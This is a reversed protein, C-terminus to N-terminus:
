CWKVNFATTMEAEIDQIMSAAANDANVDFLPNANVGSINGWNDYSYITPEIRSGNINTIAAKAATVEKRALNLLGSVSAGTIQCYQAAKKGDVIFFIGEADYGNARYTRVELTYSDSSYGEKAAQAAVEEFNLIIAM